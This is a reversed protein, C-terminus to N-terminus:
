VLHTNFAAPFRRLEPKTLSISHQSQSPLM